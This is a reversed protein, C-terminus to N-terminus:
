FLTELKIPKEKREKKPRNDYKMTRRSEPLYIFSARSAKSERSDSILSDRQNDAM